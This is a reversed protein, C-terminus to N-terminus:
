NNMRLTLSQIRPTPTPTPALLLHGNIRGRECTWMFTGELMSSAVMPTSTECTGVAAKLATIDRAWHETDRDMLFNMALADSVSAVSGTTFIKV